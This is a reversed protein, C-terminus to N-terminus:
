ESAVPGERPEGLDALYREIREATCRHREVEREWGRAAADEALDL